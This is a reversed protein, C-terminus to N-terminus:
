SSPSSCHDCHERKLFLVRAGFIYDLLPGIKLFITLRNYCETERIRFITGWIDSGYGKYVIESM